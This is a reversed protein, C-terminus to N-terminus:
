GRLDRHRVPAAQGPGGQLFGGSGLVVPHGTVARLLWRVRHAAAPPGSCGLVSPLGMNICYLLIVVLVVTDAFCLSFLTPCRPPPRATFPPLPAEPACRRHRAAGLHPARARPRQLDRHARPVLETFGELFANIQERIPGTMRYDAVADVYQQKNEQGRPHQPGRPHAGRGDGPGGGACGVTYWMCVNCWLFHWPWPCPCWGWLWPNNCLKKVVHLSRSPVLTPQPCSIPGTSHEGGGQRVSDPEGRGADMSFTLDLVDSIDNQPACFACPTPCSLARCPGEAVDADGPPQVAVLLWVGPMQWARPGECGPTLGPV